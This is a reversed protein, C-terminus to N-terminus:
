QLSSVNLIRIQVMDVIDGQPFNRYDPVVTLIGKKSLGRATLASWLKYGIIWAGGSVFIVVPALKENQIHREHNQHSNESHPNYFREPLYVDLLNRNRIGKGYIVNRLIWPSFLYYKILHFWGPILVLPIVFLEFTSLALTLRLLVYWFRFYTTKWANAAM